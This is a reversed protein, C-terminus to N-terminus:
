MNLVLDVGGSATCISDQTAIIQSAVNTNGVRPLPGATEVDSGDCGDIVVGVGDVVVHLHLHPKTCDVNNHYPHPM